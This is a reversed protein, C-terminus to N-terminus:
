FTLCSKIAGTSNAQFYNSSLKKDNHIQIAKLLLPKEVKSKFSFINQDSGKYWLTM